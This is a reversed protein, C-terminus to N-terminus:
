AAHPFCLFWSEVKWSGDERQILLVTLSKGPRGFTLIKCKWPSPTSSGCTELSVKYPYNILFNIVEQETMTDSLSHSAHALDAYAATSTILLTALMIVMKKM